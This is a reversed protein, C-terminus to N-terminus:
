FSLRLESCVRDSRHFRGFLVGSAGGFVDAGLQSPSGPHRRRPLLM